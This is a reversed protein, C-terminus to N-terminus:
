GLVDSVRKWEQSGQQIVFTEKTITGRSFLVRLTEINHPGVAREGDAVFYVENGPVPPLGTPSPAAGSSLGFSAMAGYHDRAAKDRADAKKGEAEKMGIIHALGFCTCCLLMAVGATTEQAATKSGLGGVLAGLFALIGIVNLFIKLLM